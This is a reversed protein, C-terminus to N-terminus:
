RKKLRDIEERIIKLEKEFYGAEDQLMEVKEQPSSDDPNSRTFGGGWLRGPMDTAFYRNRWGRGFGGLRAFRPRNTGRPTECYGQVRGTMPGQGGPGSRDFGPM